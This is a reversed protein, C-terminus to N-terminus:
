AIQPLMEITFYGDNPFTLVTSDGFTVEFEGEFEGPTDTNSAGWVYKVTGATALVITVAAKSIKASSKGLQKMSFKVAAGTIDVAAGNADLLTATLDPKTDGSKIAFDAM